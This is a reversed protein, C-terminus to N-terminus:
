PIERAFLPRYALIMVFALLAFAPGVFLGARLDFHDALFGVLTQMLVVTVGTLAIGQSAVFGLSRKFLKGAATMCLPYFPAMALGTFAFGIPTVLLGVAISVVALVLSVLMQAKLSVRPRWFIFLVRGAFMGVFYLTNLTSMASFSWGESERVFQALRSSVMIELAVYAALILGYYFMETRRYRVVTEDLKQQHIDKPIEKGWFTAILLVTSLCAAVLFSNQWHPSIQHVLLVLLPASLSALGYMSQLGSLWKQEDGAPSAEHVMVNQAVGMIGFALGFFFVSVLVWNFTPSAWIGVLSVIFLATSFQLSRVRGWRDLLRGGWYGGPIIMASAVSFFLSGMRNDLSFQKLLDPFLPGRINDALGQTLLSFYALFIYSSHVKRM